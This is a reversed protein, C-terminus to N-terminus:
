LTEQKLSEIYKDIRRLERPIRINQPCLSECRGCAICHDAQRVTPIAENYALLYKRRMKAYGEQEKSAVYTGATVNDNYFKFIGPINIGYPCPMCYQCGTCSVLPYNTMENAVGWLLKKGDDDLPKFDLFTELNDQLHEMYTMGSLACMVRPFSGVYRFAWSAISREPELSKLRDTLQSPIEALAGGRLPEMIVIPIGRKDLESYLYDARTNRGSPHEWDLYNMQIQVFDWHYKDHLAMMDDFGQQHGHFSFGLHRIRGAEREKVLFDVIGCNEFRNKYDNLDSIAHLLYYDIHDTKFIELSRRYMRVCDEYPTPAFISLKTALLWEERPHRNLAEATARESDGGLYVPSTDFYNIGHALAFDVLRNVEEQDIHNQGDEGKVMPWRMCGYGLTGIGPFNQLMEGHLDKNGTDAASKKVAGPACAAVGIAAAGLGASKLFERRDM